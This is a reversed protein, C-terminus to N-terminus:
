KGGGLDLSKLYERFEDALDPRRLAFEVTTRLYDMRNGIDYRKGDFKYAYVDENAAMLNLADTLQIEGNKGPPTEDLYRFIRATLVYRGAIALNSPAKSPHPKEVLEDLLYINPEVEKGRIVGYRSVKDPPVEEVAIITRGLKAHQEM